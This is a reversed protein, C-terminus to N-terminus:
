NPTGYGSRALYHFFAEVDNSTVFREDSIAVFHLIPRFRCNGWRTWIREYTILVPVTYSFSDVGRGTHDGL